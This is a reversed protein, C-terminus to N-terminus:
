TGTLIYFYNDLLHRGSHGETGVATGFIITYETLSAHVIYIGGTCGGANNFM